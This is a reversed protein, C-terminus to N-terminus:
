EKSKVRYETSKVRLRVRLRVRVTLIPKSSNVDGNQKNGNDNKNGTNDCNSKCYNYLIDQSAWDAKDSFCM